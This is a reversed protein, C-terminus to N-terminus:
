TRKDLWHTVILGDGDRGIWAGGNFVAEVLVGGDDLVLTDTGVPAPCTSADRFQPADPAPPPTMVAEFRTLWEDMFQRQTTLAADITAAANRMEDAAARITHAARSVEEAGLLTVYDAM